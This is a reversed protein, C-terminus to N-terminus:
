GKYPLQIIFAAGQLHSTKIEFSGGYSSVLEVCVALGIGQGAYQTDARVGRQTVKKRYHEDVGPGDDDVQLKLLGNTQQQATIEITSICFKAANEILNGCLEMLDGKSVPFALNDPCHIIFNINKNQYLKSLMQILQDLVPRIDTYEKLLGQRGMMARKLQYKVLHDMDQIQQQIQQDKDQQTLSSDDILAISAALRTKLSHALDNMADQYRSQRQQSQIILQNLAQTIEQLEVPYDDSLSQQKGQKLKLLEQKLQKLPLMGWYAASILLFLAAGLVIALRFYTLRNFKKLESTINAADKLILLHFAKGDIVTSLKFVLYSPLGDFDLYYAQYDDKIDSYKECIETLQLDKALQSRWLSNFHNNCTAMIYSTEINDNDEAETIPILNNERFEAAIVPLEAIYEATIQAYRNQAHLVTVSWAFGFGVLAIISLSTVFMRTLLRKKPKYILQM